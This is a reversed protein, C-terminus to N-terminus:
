PVNVTLQISFVIIFFFLGHIAWKKLYVDAILFLSMTRITLIISALKLQRRYRKKVGGGLNLSYLVLCGVSNYGHVDLKLNKQFVDIM